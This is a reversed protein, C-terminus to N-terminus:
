RELNQQEPSMARFPPRLRYALAINTGVVLAMLLGFILFLVIKTELVSSFVRSFGVSGFWLLDTCLGTLSGVVTYLLFLAILTPVLLRPRRPLRNIQPRNFV